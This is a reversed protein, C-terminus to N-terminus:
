DLQFHNNYRRFGVKSDIVKPSM